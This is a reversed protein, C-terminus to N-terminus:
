SAARAVSCVIERVLLNVRLLCAWLHVPLARVCVCLHARAGPVSQSWTPGKTCTLTPTHTHTVGLVEASWTRECMMCGTSLQTPVAAPTDQSQPPKASSMVSVASWKKEPPPRPPLSVRGPEIGREPGLSRRGSLTLEAGSCGFSASLPVAAVFRFAVPAGAFSTAVHDISRGKTFLAWRRSVRSKVHDGAVCLLVPRCAKPHIQTGALSGNPSQHPWLGSGEVGGVEMMEVRMGRLTTSPQPSHCLVEYVCRYWEQVPLRLASSNVHWAITAPDQLGSVEVPAGSGSDRVNVTVIDAFRSGGAALSGVELDVEVPGLTEWLSRPFHVTASGVVVASPPQAASVRQTRLRLRPTAVRLAPSECHAARPAWAATAASSFPGLLAEVPAGRRTQPYLAADLAAFLASTVNPHHLHPEAVAVLAEALRLDGGFHSPANLRRAMFATDRLLWEVAHPTDPGTINHAIVAQSHPPTPRCADARVAM